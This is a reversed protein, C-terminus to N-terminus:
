ENMYWEEVWPLCEARLEELNAHVSYILLFEKIYCEVDRIQINQVGTGTLARM